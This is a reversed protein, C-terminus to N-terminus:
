ADYAGYSGYYNGSNGPSVKNLLTVVVPCNELTALAETVSGQPTDDAAVILIVQGM